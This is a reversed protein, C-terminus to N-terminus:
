AIASTKPPRDISSPRNTVVDSSLAIAWAARNISIDMGAASTGTPLDHAHDASNHGHRHQVGGKAFHPGAQNQELDDHDIATIIAVHGPM